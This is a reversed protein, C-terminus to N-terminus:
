GSDGVCKFTMNSLYKDFHRLIPYEPPEEIDFKLRKAPPEKTTENLQKKEPKDRNLTERFVEVLTDQIDIDKSCSSLVKSCEHFLGCEKM